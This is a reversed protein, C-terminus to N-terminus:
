NNTNMSDTIIDDGAEYTNTTKNFDFTSTLDGGGSNNNMTVYDGGVTMGAALGSILEDAILYGFGWKVATEVTKGFFVKGVDWGNTPREMPSSKFVSAIQADKQGQMMAYMALATPDKIQTLIISDRAAGAAFYQAMVAKDDSRRQSESEMWSGTHDACGTLVLAMMLIIGTILTKM